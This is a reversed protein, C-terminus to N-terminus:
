GEETKVSDSIFNKFDIFIRAEYRGLVKNFFIEERKISTVLIDPAYCINTLIKDVFKNLKAGGSRNNCVDVVRLCIHGKVQAGYMSGDFSKVYHSIEINDINMFTLMKDSYDLTNVDSYDEFVEAGIDQLYTKIRNKVNVVM